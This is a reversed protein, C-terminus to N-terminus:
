KENFAPTFKIKKDWGMLMSLTCKAIRFVENDNEGEIRYDISDPM